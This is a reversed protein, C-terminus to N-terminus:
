WGALGVVHMDSGAQWDWLTCTVVLWGCLMIHMDSGALEMDDSGALWDWWMCTVILWGWEM